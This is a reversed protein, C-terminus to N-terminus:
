SVDNAFENVVQVRYFHGNSSWKIVAYDGIHSKADAYLLPIQSVQGSICSSYTSHLENKLGELETIERREFQGFFKGPSGVYTVFLDEEARVEVPSIQLLFFSLTIKYFFTM